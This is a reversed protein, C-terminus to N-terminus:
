DDSDSDASKPPESAPVRHTRWTGGPVSTVIPTVPWSTDECECPVIRCRAGLSHDAQEGTYWLAVVKPLLSLGILWRVLACSLLKPAHICAVFVAIDIAILTGMLARMRYVAM